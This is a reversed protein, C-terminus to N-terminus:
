SETTVSHTMQRTVRRALEPKDKISTRSARRSSTSASFAAVKPKADIKSAIVSEPQKKQPQPAKGQALKNVWSAINKRRGEATKLSQLRLCILFRNTKTLVDWMAKANPDAEIAEVLDAPPETNAQDYAQAWRGDAKAAEITALGPPYMRKEAILRGVIAVNRKSWTGKAARPTFRYTMTKEDVSKGRSDIWGWCLAEELADAYTLSTAPHAAHAKPKAVTLWIGHSTTSHQALWQAWTAKNAVKLSPLQSSAM